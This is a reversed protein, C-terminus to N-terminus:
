MCSRTTAYTRVDNTLAWFWCQVKNVENLSVDVIGWTVLCRHDDDSGYGSEM